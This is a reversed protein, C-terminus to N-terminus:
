TNQCALEPKSPSSDGETQDPQKIPLTITFKTGKGETSEVQIRGHHNEVARRVSLLGFGHGKEKTTFREKLLKSLKEGCIGTGNDGIQIEVQHEERLHRVVVSITRERDSIPRLADAANNMLNYFLQQLQAHDAEILPLDQDFDTQFAIDDFRNQPRLFFLERQIFNALDLPEKDGRPVAFDMLSNVLCGINELESQMRPIRQCLCKRPDSEIELSLLDLNGTVIQLYNNLEHAVEAAMEGRTAMRELELAQRSLNREDTVNRSVHLITPSADKEDQIECIVTDAIFHGGDKRTAIIEGRWMRKERFSERMQGELNLLNDKGMLMEINRGFVEVALYGYEREATRNFLTITGHLDTSIISFPSTSVIRELFGKARNMERNSDTLAQAYAKLNQYAEVLQKNKQRLQDVMHLDSQRLRSSLTKMIQYAILPHDKLMTVFDPKSLELVSTPQTARATAFRPEEDLLSMEGFIDGKRRLALETSEEGRKQKKRIAVEGDVIIYLRDGYSNERFLIEGEEYAKGQFLPAVKRLSDSDLGSFIPITQLVALANELM